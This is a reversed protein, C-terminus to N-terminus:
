FLQLCVGPDSIRCGIDPTPRVPDSDWVRSRPSGVPDPTPGMPDTTPRVLDTTPRVPDPTPRVPDPTPRVPDPTPRVPDPIHFGQAGVLTRFSYTPLSVQFNDKLLASRPTCISCGETLRSYIPVYAYLGINVLHIKIVIFSVPDMDKKM